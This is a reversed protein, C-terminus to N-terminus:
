AQANALDLANSVQQSCPADLLSRTLTSAKVQLNSKTALEVYM